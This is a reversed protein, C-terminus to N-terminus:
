YDVNSAGNKAGQEKVRAVWTTSVGSGELSACVPVFVIFLSSRIRFTGKAKKPTCHAGVNNM